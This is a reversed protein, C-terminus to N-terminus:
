VEGLLVNIDQEVKEQPQDANITKLIGLEKYYEILPFTQKEYVELRKKAVEPDDDDRRVIKGGCKTCTTFDDGAVYNEKCKSCFKRKAIRELVKDNSIEFYLVLDIDMFKQLEKAQDLTRPFGDLMFGNELSGDEIKAQM